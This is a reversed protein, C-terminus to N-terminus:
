YKTYISPYSNLLHRALNINESEQGQGQGQGQGREQETTIVIDVLIRNYIDVDGLTCIVWRNNKKILREIDNNSINILSQSRDDLIMKEKRGIIDIGRLHCRYTVSKKAWTEESEYEDKYDIYEYQNKYVSDYRRTGTIETGPSTGTNTETNTREIEIDFDTENQVSTSPVFPIVIDIDFNLADQINVVFGTVNEIDTFRKYTSFIPITSDNSIYKNRIYKQQYPYKLSGQVSSSCPAPTSCPGSESRSFSLNKNFGYKNKYPIKGPVYTGLGYSPRPPLPMPASFKNFYM